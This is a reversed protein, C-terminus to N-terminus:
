LAVIRRKSLPLLDSTIFLGDDDYLGLLLSGLVRAGTAYRFGGVVCDATRIQKVKVVATREGRLM